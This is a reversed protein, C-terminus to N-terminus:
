ALQKRILQRVLDKMPEVTAAVDATLEYHAFEFSAGRTSLLLAKPARGYMEDVWALLERPNLFHQMSHMTSKDPRLPRCASKEWSM